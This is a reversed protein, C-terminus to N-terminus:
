MDKLFYRGYEVQFFVYVRDFVIWFIELLGIFIGWKKLGNGGFHKFTFLVDFSDMGFLVFFVALFVVVLVHFIVAKLVWERAKSIKKGKRRVGYIQETLLVYLAFALFTGCYLKNPALLFGLFATAAVAAVGLRAGFRRVVLGMLFSAACLLFITNIELVGSLVILIVSLAVMMGSFAMEKGKVYLQM